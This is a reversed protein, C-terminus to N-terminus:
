KKYLERVLGERPPTLAAKKKSQDIPAASDAAAATPRAFRIGETGPPLAAGNM